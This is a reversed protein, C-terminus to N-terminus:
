LYEVGGQSVLDWVLDNIIPLIEDIMSLPDLEITIPQFRVIPEMDDADRLRDAWDDMERIVIPKGAIGVLGM